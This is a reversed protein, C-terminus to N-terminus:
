TQSSFAGIASRKPVKFISISLISVSPLRGERISSAANFLMAAEFFAASTREACGGLSGCAAAAMDGAKDAAEEVDDKSGLWGIGASM